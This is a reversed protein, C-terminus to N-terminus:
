ALSLYKRIILLKLLYAIKAKLLTYLKEVASLGAGDGV